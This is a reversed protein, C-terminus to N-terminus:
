HDRHTDLVRPPRNAFARLFGSTFTHAAGFLLAVEDGPSTKFHERIERAAIHERLEFRIRSDTESAYPEQRQWRYLIEDVVQPVTKKLRVEENLALVYFAGSTAGLFELFEESPSGLELSERHLRQFYAICGTDGMRERLYNPLIWKVYECFEEKHEPTDLALDKYLGEVFVTKAGIERILHAIELQGIGLERLQEPTEQYITHTQRLFHVTGIKPDGNVLLDGRYKSYSPLTSNFPFQLSKGVEFFVDTELGTTSGEHRM